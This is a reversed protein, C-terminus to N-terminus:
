GESWRAADIGKVLLWLAVSLEAVFAPLLIAPFLRDAVPPAIILAFSNTLYCVGAIAMMVGLTRPLYRSRFMLAGLVITCWGFFILAIGFGHAHSRTALRTLAQLQAADFAGLYAGKGLPYLARLLDVAAAAEVAVAMLNFFVALWTLARNVPGLLVLFVVTLATACSLLVIEAAAGLRWLTENSTINAATQAADGPVILRSRVFLEQFLGLAIITLYLVGGTRAVVRASAATAPSGIMM